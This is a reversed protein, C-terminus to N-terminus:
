LLQWLPLTRTRTLRHRVHQGLFLLTNLSILNGGRPAMGVRSGCGGGGWGWVRRQQCECALKDGNTIVSGKFWSVVVAPTLSKVACQQISPHLSSLLHLTHTRAQTQICEYTNTSPARIKGRRTSWLVTAMSLSVNDTNRGLVAGRLRRHHELSHFLGLRIATHLDALGYLDADVSLQTCQSFHCARWM